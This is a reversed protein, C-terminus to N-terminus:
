RLFEYGPCIRYNLGLKLTDVYVDHGFRFTGGSLSNETGFDFHLYEGKL